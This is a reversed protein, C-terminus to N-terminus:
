RESPPKVVPGRRPDFNPGGKYNAPYAGRRYNGTRPNGRSYYAARDVVSKGIAPGPGTSITGDKIGQRIAAQEKVYDRRLQEPTMPAFGSQFQTIAKALVGYLRRETNGAVTRAVRANALDKEVQNRRASVSEDPTAPAPESVAEPEKVEPAAGNAQLADVRDKLASWGVFPAAQPPAEPEAEAPRFEALNADTLKFDDPLYRSIHEVTLPADPGAREIADAIYEKRHPNMANGKM